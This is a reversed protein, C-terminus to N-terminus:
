ETNKKKVLLVKGYTGTGIVQILSFDEKQVKGTKEQSSKILTEYEEKVEQNTKGDEDM